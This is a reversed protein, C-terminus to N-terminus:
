LNAIRSVKVENEIKTWRCQASFKSCTTSTQWASVQFSSTEQCRSAKYHWRPVKDLSPIELLILLMEIVSCWQQFINSARLCTCSWTNCYLPALQTHVASVSSALWRGRPKPHLQREEMGTRCRPAAPHGAKAQSWTTPSRTWVPVELAWHLHCHTSSWQTFM